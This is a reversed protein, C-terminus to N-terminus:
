TAKEDRHYYRYSSLDYGDTGNLVTGLVTSGTRELATQVRRLAHSPTRGARVVILVGDVKAGVVRADAMPVAPPTDVIVFKFADAMASLFKTMRDSNLLAVPNPATPGAGIVFLSKSSTSHITPRAVHGALFLSLGGQQDIGFEDGFVPRRLDCEVLLTRAGTDALARALQVAVTTKGEGPAASTVVLTRPPRNSQSLLLAACLTRIAESGEPTRSLDARTAAPQNEADASEGSRWVVLGSMNALSLRGSRLEPVTSLVPLSSVQELDEITTISGRWFDNVMAVSIGLALGLVSALLLNWTVNPRAVVPNPMARELVHVDGLEMGPTIGTERLRSMIGEFMKQNTEVERRIINYQVSAKQLNVVLAEQEAKAVALRSRKNEAAQVDLSAQERSQALVAGQERKLQDSVMAIEDRKQRVAPWNEGFNARLSTLEHELQLMASRRSSLLETELNKPFDTVSAKRLTDLRSQAVVLEAEAEILQRSIQALKDQALDGQGSENRYMNHAQAYAVLEKESEQVRAELTALERELLRRAQQRTEQSSEFRMKIYEEAYINAVMAAVEAQPALYSIRFVQSNPVQVIERRNGVRDAEAALAPVTELRLRTAVRAELGPGTLVQEQTTMMFLYNSPVTPTSVDQYPLVRVADVNVQLLTTGRYLREALLTGVTAPVVVLAMVGLIQWRRRWLAWVLRRINFSEDGGPGGIEPPAAVYRAMPAERAPVMAEPPEAPVRGHSM